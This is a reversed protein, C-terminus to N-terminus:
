CGRPAAPWGGRGRRWTGSGSTPRSTARPAEWARDHVTLVLPVGPSVALPAPAPAWVVDCGGALRDLRPRGTLAAAGFLARSAARGRPVVVSFEDEPHARRLAELLASAYHGIGRGAGVLSRGDICVKLRRAPGITMLARAAARGSSPPGLAGGALQRRAQRAQAGAGVGDHPRRRRQRVAGPVRPLLERQGREHGDPARRQQEVGRVERRQGERAVHDDDVVGGGQALGGPVGAEVRGPM